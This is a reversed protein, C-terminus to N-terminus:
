GLSAKKPSKEAPEALSLWAVDDDCETPDQWEHNKYKYNENTALSLKAVVAGNELRRVEPDRGLHGILTVKNVM